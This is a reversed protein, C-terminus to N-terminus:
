TRQLTQRRPEGGRSSRAGLPPSNGAESSRCGTAAGPEVARDRGPVTGSAEALLVQHDSAWDGYRHWTIDPFRGRLAGIDVRSPDHDLWAFLAILGPPLDARPLQRATFERGLIRTLASAAEAGTPADSAVEIREGIVAHPQEIALVALALVDSTAVQQLRRAPPLPTPLIGARLEALNWPNVLNEMLYVPAIVTAPLGLEAIRREVAIKADFLAVGTRRDAGAGSVFVLHPAGAAALADALNRGHREEGAPGVRHATGSAFVASVGEAAAALSRRDEFDARVVEAGLAALRAAAPGGPSRTAARVAHGRALLLDTIQGFRGTAGAVLVRRAGAGAVREGRAAQVREGGAAQVREGGAAQVRGTGAAQVRGGGAGAIRYAYDPFSM